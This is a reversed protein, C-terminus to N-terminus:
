MTTCEMELVYENQRVLIKYGKVQSKGKGRMRWSKAVLMRNATERLKVIESEVYLHFICHKDKQTQSIENLITDELKKQTTMFPLIENEKFASYYEM